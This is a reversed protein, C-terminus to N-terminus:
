KLGHPVGGCKMISLALWQNTSNFSYEGETSYKQLEIINNITTLPPGYIFFMMIDDTFSPLQSTLHLTIYYVSEKTSLFSKHVM